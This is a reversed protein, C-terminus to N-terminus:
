YLRPDLKPALHGGPELEVSLRSSITGTRSTRTQLTSPLRIEGGSLDRPATSSRPGRTRPPPDRPQSHFLPTHPPRHHSAEGSFPKRRFLATSPLALKLKELDTGPPYPVIPSGLRDLHPRRPHASFHFFLVTISDPPIPFHSFMLIRMVCFQGQDASDLDVAPVM